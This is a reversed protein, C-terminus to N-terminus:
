QVPEEVARCGDHEFPEAAHEECLWLQGCCIPCSVNKNEGHAGDAEGPSM